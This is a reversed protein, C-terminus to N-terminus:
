VSEFVLMEEFERKNSIGTVGRQLHSAKNTTYQYSKVFKYGNQEVIRKLDAKYKQNIQFCFHLVKNCHKVVQDFSNLFDVYNENEIGKDTYHETDFYPPCTIVMDSTSPCMVNRSDAIQYFVNKLDNQNIMENYGALLAGNIDVGTYMVHKMGAMFGREGWGSFPDYIHVPKFEDIVQAMLRSDFESYGRWLGSIAFSSLLKKTTLQSPLLGLYKYRNMFLQAQLPFGTKTYANANWMSLEHQYFVDFQYQKVLQSMAYPTIKTFSRSTKELQVKPLWNYECIYDHSDPADSALWLKADSLKADWFVVYNLKNSEATQRKLVDRHSFTNIAIDYYKSHRSKWDLLLKNDNSSFWHMGHTWHANLEIFLDRSPIYFDCNFPYRSSDNYQRVVDHKGFHAILLEYLSEEPKSTSFTGNKRKTDAKLTSLKMKEVFNRSNMAESVGYRDIMTERAKNKIEPNLFPYEVGYRDFMTSRSKSKVEPSAFASEAGYKKLIADKAKRRVTESKLINDVGYHRHVANAVKKKVSDLQMPNDVGYKAKMTAQSRKITDMKFRSSRKENNCAPCGFGQLHSNAEQLFEGHKPCIIIVKDKNRKFVVKSYDYFNGHLAKAKKIFSEQTNRKSPNCDPCGKGALHNTPAQEFDGHEPCTIIVKKHMNQYVTKDYQYKGGHVISARKIFTKTDLRKVM